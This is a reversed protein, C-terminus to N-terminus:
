VRFLGVDAVVLDGTGPRMLVNEHHVDNWSMVGRRDLWKLALYLSRLKPNELREKTDSLDMDTSEPFAQGKEDLGAVDALRRAVNKVIFTWNNAGKLNKLEDFEEDSIRNDQMANNLASLIPDGITMRFGYHQRTPDYTLAEKLFEHTKLRAWDRKSVVIGHFKNILSRRSGNGYRMLERWLAQDVHPIIKSAIENAWVGLEQDNGQRWGEINTGSPMPVLFEMLIAYFEIGKDDELTAFSDIRPLHKAIIPPLENRVEHVKKYTDAEDPDDSLKLALRKGDQTVEWVTGYGGAGVFGSQDSGSPVIDLGLEDIAIQLRKKDELMETKESSRFEDPTVLGAERM